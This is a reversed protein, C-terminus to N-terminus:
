FMSNDTPNTSLIMDLGELSGVGDNTHKTVNNNNDFTRFSPTFPQPGHSPPYTLFMGQQQDQCFSGNNFMNSCSENDIINSDNDPFLKLRSDLFEMSSRRRAVLRDEEQQLGFAQLKTELRFPYSSSPNRPPNVMPPQKLENCPVHLDNSFGINKMDSSLAACQQQHLAQQQLLQVQQQQQLQQQLKQMQQEQPLEQNQEMGANLVATFWQFAPEAVQQNSSPTLERSPSSPCSSSSKMMQSASSSSSSPGQQKAVAMDRLAHAVKERTARESLEEVVEEDGGNGGGVKKKRKIFRAGSERLTNVVSCIVVSKDQRTTANMYRSLNLSITLRFRRNGVNNFSEPSRGCLIDYPQVLGDESCRESESLPIIEKNRHGGGSTASATTAMEGFSTKKTNGGGGISAITEEEDTDWFINPMMNAVITTSSNNTTQRREIKHRPCPKEKANEKVNKHPWVRNSAECPLQFEFGNRIKNRLHLASM